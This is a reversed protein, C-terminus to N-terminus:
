NQKGRRRMQTRNVPIRWSRRRYRLAEPRHGLGALREGGAVPSGTMRDFAATASATPSTTADRRNM